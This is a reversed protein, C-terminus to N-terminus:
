QSFLWRLCSERFHAGWCPWSSTRAPSSLFEEGCSHLPPTGGRMRRNMLMSFPAQIAVVLLANVVFVSSSLPGSEAVFLLHISIASFLQAYLFCGTASTIAAARVQRDLVIAAFTEVTLPPRGKSTRPRKSPVFIASVIAAAVYGAAVSWLLAATSGNLLLAGLLPGAAAALNAGVQIASFVTTRRDSSQLSETAFVRLAM